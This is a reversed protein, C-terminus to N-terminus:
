EEKRFWDAYSEPFSASSPHSGCVRCREGPYAEVTEHEQPIRAIEDLRVAETPCVTTCTGCAICTASPAKLPPKVELKRGRFSFDIAKAGVIEACARICLGCLICKEDRLEFETGTVGYEEALRRVAPAEPCRALLLELLMQRVETIEPSSTRVELDPRVPFVCSAVLTSGRASGAGVEVMCLRCAGYPKVGEHYCLTPIRIGLMRAAELVTTGEPVEIEHNDITLKVSMGIDM